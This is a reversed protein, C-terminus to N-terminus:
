YNGRRSELTWDLGGPRVVRVRITATTADGAVDVSVAYAGLGAVPNGFQDRPAEGSIRDYCWITDYRARSAGGCDGPGSGYERLLIEDMYATAIARGQAVFQPDPSDLIPTVFARLLVAGAIGIVVLAAILEVLTFGTSPKPAAQRM